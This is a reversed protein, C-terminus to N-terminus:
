NKVRSHGEECNENERERERVQETVTGFHM